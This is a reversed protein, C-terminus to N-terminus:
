YRRRRMTGGMTSAMLYRAQFRHRPTSTTVRELRTFYRHLTNLQQPDMYISAQKSATTKFVQKRYVKEDVTGAAVLRYIIVDRRQGIRHVRDVAQADVAPNWYPDMLIVRTASNFTLGTGGVQTTLLCVAAPSGPENFARVIGAREGAPVEGDVRVHAFNAASLLYSLM